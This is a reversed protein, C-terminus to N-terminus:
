GKKIEEEPMNEKEAEVIQDMTAEEVVLVKEDASPITTNESTSVATSEQTSVAITPVAQKATTKASGHAVEKRRRSQVGLNRKVKQPEKKKKGSQIGTPTARKKSRNGPPSIGRKKKIVAKKNRPRPLTGKEEARKLMAASRKIRNPFSESGILNKCRNCRVKNAGLVVLRGAICHCCKTPRLRAFRFPRPFRRIKRPIRVTMSDWWWRERANNHDLVWVEVGWEPIVVRVEGTCGSPKHVVRDGIKVQKGQERTM